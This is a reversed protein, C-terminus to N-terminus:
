DPETGVRGDWCHIQLPGAGVAVAAAYGAGADVSVVSWRAAESPDDAISLAVPGPGPALAVTVGALPVRLGDGRAKLFAEKRTWCGFFAAPRDLPEFARLAAIEDAAFYRAALADYPVDRRLREVDVGVERHRTIAILALSATHALNFRVPSPETSDALHPKGGPATDIRLSGPPRDLYRALIRRLAARGAA